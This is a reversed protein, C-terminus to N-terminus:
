WVTFGMIKMKPFHRNYRPRTRERKEQKPDQRCIEANFFQEWNNRQAWLQTNLSPESCSRFAAEYLDSEIGGSESHISIEKTSCHFRILRRLSGARVKKNRKAGHVQPPSTWIEDLAGLAFSPTLKIKKQAHWGDRADCMGYSGCVFGELTM